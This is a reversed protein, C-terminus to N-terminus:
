KKLVMTMKDGNYFNYELSVFGKKGSLIFESSSYRSDIESTAKITWFTDDAEEKIDSIIYQTKVKKGTWEGWGSGIHLLSFYTDGSKQNKRFDPFPAIETLSYQNHRPPHIWIKDKNEMIGTTDASLWGISFQNQFKKQTEPKTKYNWIAESQDESNKWKRGTITLYITEETKLNQKSQFYQTNYEFVQEGSYIQGLCTKFFLTLITLGILDKM